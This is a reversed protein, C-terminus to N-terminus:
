REVSGHEVLRPINRSALAGVRLRYSTPDTEAMEELRPVLAAYEDHTM